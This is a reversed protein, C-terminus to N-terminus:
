FNKAIAIAFVALLDFLFFSAEFHFFFLKYLISRLFITIICVMEIQVGLLNLSSQRKQNNGAM